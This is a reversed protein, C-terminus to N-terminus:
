DDYSAFSVRYLVGDVKIIDHSYADHEIREAAYFADDFDYLLDAATDYAADSDDVEVWIVGDRTHTSALDLAILQALISAFTMTTTM